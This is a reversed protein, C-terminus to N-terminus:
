HMGTHGFGGDGRGTATLSEEVVFEAQYSPAVVIQAIRMGSTIVFPEKGLNMLIVQLQGRYDADITGPSNLVVVQNKLALGSRSRVQVEFGEAIGLRIGTPVAKVEGPLLTIDAEIFARVDAGAALESAYFPLEAGEELVITVIVKNKM